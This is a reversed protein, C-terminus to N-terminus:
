GMGGGGYSSMDPQDVPGAWAPAGNSASGKKGTAALIQAFIRGFNASATNGAQDGYQRNAMGGAILGSNIDAAGRNANGSASVLGTGIRGLADAAMPQVGTTLRSVQSARNRNLENLARSRGAGPTIMSVGKAAGSYTDGIDARAGATAIGMAPRSGRLLTDYYSTAGGVAPMARDFMEKGQATNQKALDTNANMSAIEEPSREMASKAASKGILSSGIAGGAM